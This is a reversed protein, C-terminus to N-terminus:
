TCWSWDQGSPATDAAGGAPWSGAQTVQEISMSMKSRVYGGNPLPVIGFTGVTKVLACVLIPSGKTWNPAVIKVYTNNTGGMAGVGSKVSCLLLQAKNGTCGSGYNFSEVIAHRAGERVGQRANLSDNFYLGYQIIGFLVLFLVGSILAFEVAAAGHEGSRRAQLRARM